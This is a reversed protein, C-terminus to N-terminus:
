GVKVKTHPAKYPEGDITIVEPIQFSCTGTTVMENSKKNAKEIAEEKSPADIVFNVDGLKVSVIHQDGNKLDELDEYIKSFNM